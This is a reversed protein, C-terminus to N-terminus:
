NNPENYLQLIEGEDLAKNFIRVQDIEGDLHYNYTGSSNYAGILNQGGGSISNTTGSDSAVVSNNLYM